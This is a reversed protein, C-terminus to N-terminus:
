QWLSKIGQEKAKKEWFDVRERIYNIWGDIEDSKFGKSILDKKYNVIVPEVAKEWRKVEADSLQIVQGGQQKFFDLGEFDIENWAIAHKAKFEMSVEDFIKKIDAPLGNWKEKNM